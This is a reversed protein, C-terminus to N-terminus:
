FVIKAAPLDVRQVVFLRSLSTSLAISRQSFSLIFHVQKGEEEVKIRVPGMLSCYRELRQLFQFGSPACLSSYLCISFNEIKPATGMQIPLSEEKYIQGIAEFLDYFSQESIEPQERDLLDEPLHARSLVAKESIEHFAMMDRYRGDLPFMNM